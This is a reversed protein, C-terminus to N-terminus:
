DIRIPPVAGHFWRATLAREPVILLRNDAGNCAEDLFNRM